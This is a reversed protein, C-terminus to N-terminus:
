WSPVPTNSAGMSDATMTEVEQGPFFLDKQFPQFYLDPDIRFQSRQEEEPQRSRPM